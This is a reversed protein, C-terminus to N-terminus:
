AKPKARVKATKRLYSWDVDPRLDECRVKGNSAREIEICIEAPTKRQNNRLQSLLVEHIGVLGAFEKATGNRKSLYTNLDM